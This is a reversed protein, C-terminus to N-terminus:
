KSNKNKRGSELNQKSESKKIQKKKPENFPLIEM